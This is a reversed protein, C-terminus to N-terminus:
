VMQGTIILILLELYSHFTFGVLLSGLSIVSCFADHGQPTEFDMSLQFTKVGGTLQIEKTLVYSHLTTHKNM